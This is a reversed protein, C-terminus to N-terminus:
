RRWARSRSGRSCSTSRCPRSGVRGPARRIWTSSRPASSSSRRSCSTRRAVFAVDSRRRRGAHAPHLSCRAAHSATRRARADRHAGIAHVYDARGLQWGRAFRRACASGSSSSRRCRSGSSGRLWRSGRCCSCSARPGPVPLFVVLWGVLWASVLVRRPPRELVHADCAYSTPPASLPGLRALALVLSRCSVHTRHLRRRARGLPVGLPSCRGSASATSASRSPSSSASRASGPRCRLPARSAPARIPCGRWPRQPYRRASPRRRRARRAVELPVLALRVRRRLRRSLWATTVSAAFSSALRARAHPAIRRVRAAAPM